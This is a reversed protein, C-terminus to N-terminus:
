HVKLDIFIGNCLNNDILVEKEALLKFIPLSTGPYVQVKYEEDILYSLVAMEELIYDSSKQYAIDIPVRLSFGNKVQKTIFYKSSTQISKRILDNNIYIHQLQELKIKVAELNYYEKWHKINFKSNLKLKNITESMDKGISDLDTSTTFPIESGFIEVNHRHLYDGIVILCHEFHKDIWEFLEPLYKSWFFPNNISIGVYCKNFKALNQKSHSPRFDRIYVKRKSM